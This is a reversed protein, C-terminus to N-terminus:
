KVNETFSPRELKEAGVCYSRKNQKSELDLLVVGMEPAATPQPLPQFNCECKQETFAPQVTCAYMMLSAIAVSALHKLKM